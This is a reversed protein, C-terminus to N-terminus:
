NNQKMQDAAELSEVQTAYITSGWILLSLIILWVVAVTTPLHYNTDRFGAYEMNMYALLVGIFCARIYWGFRLQEWPKNEALKKIINIVAFSLYVLLIAIMYVFYDDIDAHRPNGVADGLSGSIEVLVILLFIWRVFRITNIIRTMGEIQLLFVIGLLLLTITLALLSAPTIFVVYARAASAGVVVQKAPEVASTAQPRAELSKTTEVPIEVQKPIQYSGIAFLLAAISALLFCSIFTTISARVRQAKQENPKQEPSAEGKPKVTRNILLVVITLAFGAITSSITAEVRMMSNVDMYDERSPTPLFYKIVFWLVLGLIILILTHTVVRALIPHNREFNKLRM